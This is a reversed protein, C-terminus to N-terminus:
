RARVRPIRLLHRDAHDFELNIAILAYLHIAGASDSPSLYSFMGIRSFGCRYSVRTRCLVTGIVRAKVHGGRAPLMGSPRMLAGTDDLEEHSFLATCALCM